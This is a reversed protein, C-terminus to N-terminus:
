LVATHAQFPVGPWLVSCCAASSGFVGREQGVRSRVKSIGAIVGVEQPTPERPVCAM